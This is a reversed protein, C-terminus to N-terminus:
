RIRELVLSPVYLVVRKAEPVGPVLDRTLRALQVVMEGLQATVPDVPAEPPPSSARTVKDLISTAAAHRADHNQADSTQLRTTLTHWADTLTNSQKLQAILERRTARNFTLM